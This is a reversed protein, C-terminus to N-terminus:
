RPPFRHRRRALALALTALALVSLPGRDSREAIRCGCGSAGGGRWVNRPDPADLPVGADRPTTTVSADPSPPPPGADVDCALDGGSCDQDIGDGCRETAGPYVAASADNCDGAGVTVGDGDADPDTGPVVTIRIEIWRDPPGGDDGFWAVGEQVVNFFQPYDGAVAPARVSFNFRGTAGPAVVRDITAARSPSIWDPGEMASAGDRPETTGLFTQGPRWTESGVNRLELYGEVVTGPALEFPDSSLPFSQEVYEAAFSPGSSGGVLREYARVLSMYPPVYVTGVGSVNQRINFHLHTTTPTGGFENAVYGIVDGASVREGSSVLVPRMHLYDYRTGDSATLYVSYSGVNTITGSVVAIVPHREATCSSARIDQGQHGTGSPCLPMDWSRTECYNDHWPYSFNRTDCQSGSPGSSGGVGWVQSNAYSPADRIPFRMDPAYVMSDARGRGSGSVLSGAPDYTFQASARAGLASTVLLVLTALFRTGLSM